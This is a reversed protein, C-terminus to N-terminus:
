QGDVPWTHRASINAILPAVQAGAADALFLAGITVVLLFSRSSVMNPVWQISNQM